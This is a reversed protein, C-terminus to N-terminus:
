EGSSPVCNCIAVFSRTLRSKLLLSTLSGAGMTCKNIDLLVSHSFVDTQIHISRMLITAQKGGDMAVSDAKGERLKRIVWTKGMAGVEGARAEESANGVRLRQMLM